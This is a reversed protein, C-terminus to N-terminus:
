IFLFLSKLFYRKAGESTGSQVENLVASMRIIDVAVTPQLCISKHIEKRHRIFNSLHGVDAETLNMTACKTALQKRLEIVSSLKQTKPM